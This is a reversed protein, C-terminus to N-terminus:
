CGRGQGVVCHSKAVAGQSIWAIQCHGNRAAQDAETADYTLNPPHLGTQRAETVARSLSATIYYSHLVGRCM